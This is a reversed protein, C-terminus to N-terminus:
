AYYRFLRFIQDILEETRGGSKSELESEAYITVHDYDAIYKSYKYIEKEFSLMKKDVTGAKSKREFEESSIESYAFVTVVHNRFWKKCMGFIDILSAVLVCHKDQSIMHNYRFMIKQKDDSIDCVAFAYLTQNNEYMIWGKNAYEIYYAPGTMGLEQNKIKRNIYEQKEDRIKELDIIYEPNRMYFKALFDQSMSEKYSDVDIDKFHYGVKEYLKWLDNVNLDKIKDYRLDVEASSEDSILNILDQERLNPNNLLFQEPDIEKKHYGETKYIDCLQDYNKNFLDLSSLQFKCDAENLIRQRLEECQKNKEETITDWFRDYENKIENREKLIEARVKVLKEADSEAESERSKFTKEKEQLENEYDLKYQALLDRRPVYQCIMEEGDTQDQMRSTYKPLIHAQLKGMDNVAQIIQDKGSAANGSIIFLRPTNKKKVNLKIRRDLVGKVVNEIQIQAYDISNDSRKPNLIVRDFLAINEIYTRYIATAKNYRDITEDKSTNGRDNAIKEFSSLKPIERFLFLALVQQPFSKKIEEVVRVDNIIIIPSEGNDLHNKINKLSLGYKKGYTQYKLECDDPIKECSVVDVRKGELMDRIEGIRYPRTTYKSISAPRFIIQNEVYFKEKLEMIRDIIYSKGCMSPGTLTIIFANNKDKKQKLAAM